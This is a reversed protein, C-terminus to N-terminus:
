RCRHFLRGLLRPREAKVKQAACKAANVPAAVVARVRPASKCQGNACDAASASPASLLFLAALLILYRM